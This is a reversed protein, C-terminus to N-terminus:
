EPSRAETLAAEVDAIVEALSVGRLEAIRNLSLRGQPAPRPVQAADRIVDPSVRWSRAILRPTMWGAIDAEREIRAPPDIM